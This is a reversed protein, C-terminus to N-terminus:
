PNQAPGELREALSVLLNLVLLRCLCICLHLSFGPFVSFVWVRTRSGHGLGPGTLVTLGEEGAGGEQGQWRYGPWAM